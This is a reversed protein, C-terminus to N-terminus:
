LRTEFNTPRSAADPHAAALYGWGKGQMRKRGSIM